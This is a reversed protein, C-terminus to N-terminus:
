ESAGNTLIFDPKEAKYRNLLWEYSTAMDGAVKAWDHRTAILNRGAAGMDALQESTHNMAIPLTHKLSDEGPEICWGAGANPLDRWPTATTTIVPTSHALSEAVAIGFNESYSPLVFLDAHRLAIAKREGELHGVFTVSKQLFQRQAQEFIVPGNEIAVNGAVILQWAPYDSHIEGWVNLLERIGKKAHLRSLFLL